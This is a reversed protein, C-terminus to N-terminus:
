GNKFYNRQRNVLQIVAPIQARRLSDKPYMSMAKQYYAIANDYDTKNHKHTFEWDYWGALTDYLEPKTPYQKILGQILAYGHRREAQNDSETYILAQGMRIPFDQPDKQLLRVSLNKLYHSAMGGGQQMWLLYRLRDYNYTNASPAEAIATNVFNLYNQDTARAYGPTKCALRLAYGWSFQALPNNPQRKATTEYQSVLTEPKTGRAFAQEIEARAAAYPADNGTWPKNAWTTNCIADSSRKQEAWYAPDQLVTKKIVPLPFVRKKSQAFVPHTLVVVGFLLYGLCIETARRENKLINNM